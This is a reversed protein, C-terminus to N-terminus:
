KSMCRLTTLSLRAFKRAFARIGFILRLFPIFSDHITLTGDFDFVSLVQNERALSSEMSM